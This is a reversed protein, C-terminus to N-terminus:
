SNTESILLDLFRRRERPDPEGAAQVIQAQGDTETVTVAAGAEIAARLDARYRVRYTRQASGYVGQRELGRRVKDQRLESWEDVSTTVTEPEGFDNFDTSSTAITIRRDLPM